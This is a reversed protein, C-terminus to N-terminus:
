CEVSSPAEECVEDLYSNSTEPDDAYVFAQALYTIPGVPVQVAMEHEVEAELCSRDALGAAYLTMAKSLRLHPDENETASEEEMNKSVVECAGIEREVM